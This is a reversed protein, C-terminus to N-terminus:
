DVHLCPQRHHTRALCCIPPRSPIHKGEQCAVEYQSGAVIVGRQVKSLNAFVMKWNCVLCALNSGALDPASHHTCNRPGSWSFPVAM